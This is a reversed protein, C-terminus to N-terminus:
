NVTGFEPVSWMSNMINKDIREYQYFNVTAYNAVDGVISITNGTAGQIFYYLFPAWDFKSWHAIAKAELASLGDTAAYVPSLPYANDMDYITVGTCIDAGCARIVLNTGAPVASIMNRTAEVKDEVTAGDWHINLAKDALLPWAKAEAFDGTLNGFTPQWILIDKDVNQHVDFSSENFTLDQPVWQLNHIQSLVDKSYSPLCVYAPDPFALKFANANDWANRMDAQITRVSDSRLLLEVCEGFNDILGELTSPNDYYIARTGNDDSTEDLQYSGRMRHIYLQGKVSEIDMFYNSYLWAHRKVITFDLPMFLRSADRVFLDFKGRLNSINDRIKNVETASFGYGAALLREPYYFNYGSYLGVIGFARLINAYQAYVEGILHLVIGVDAPAFKSDANLRERIRQYAMTMAINVGDKGDNAVGVGDIMDFAMIGPITERMAPTAASTDYSPFLEFKSGLQQEFSIKMVDEVIRKNGLYWEPDNSTGVYKSIEEANSTYTRPNAHKGENPTSNRSNKNAYSQKKQEKQSGTKTATNTKGDKKVNSTKKSM